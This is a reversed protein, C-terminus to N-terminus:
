LIDHLKLSCYLFDFVFCIYYSSVLKKLAVEVLDKVGDDPDDQENGPQFCILTTYYYVVLVVM